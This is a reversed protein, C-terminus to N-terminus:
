VEEFVEIERFIANWVGNKRAFFLRCIKVDYIYPWLPKFHRLYGIFVFPLRVLISDIHFLLHSLPCSHLTQIYISRM